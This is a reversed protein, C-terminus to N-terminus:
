NLAPDPPFAALLALDGHQRRLVVQWLRRPDNSLADDPWADIVFWGTQEVEGELQGPGWGAYGSFVRVEAVSASVEEPRRELDVTALEGFLRRWGEGDGSAGVRGLCIAAGPSVPGGNFVVPPEKALQEWGPLVAEVPTPSPRNLVLGLAGEPEHELLLVVARDFNPDKLAPNAVILRGKLSEGTM